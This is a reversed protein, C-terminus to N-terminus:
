KKQRAFLLVLKCKFALFNLFTVANSNLLFLKMSKGVTMEEKGYMLRSFIKASYM